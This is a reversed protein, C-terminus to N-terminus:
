TKKKVKETSSKNKTEPSVVPTKQKVSKKNEDPPKSEKKTEKKTEQVVPKEFKKIDKKNEGVTTKESVIKQSQDSQEGKLDETEPLEVIEIESSIEPATLDEQVFNADPVVNMRDRICM